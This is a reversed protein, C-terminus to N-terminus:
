LRRPRPFFNRGGDTHLSFVLRNSQLGFWKVFDRVSDLVGSKNRNQRVHMYRLSEDVITVFYKEGNETASKIKDQTEAQLRGM